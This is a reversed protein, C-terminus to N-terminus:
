SLKTLHTADGLISLSESIIIGNLPPTFDTVTSHVVTADYQRNISLGMINVSQVGPVQSIAGVLASVYLTDGIKFSKFFNELAGGPGAVAEKLFDWSVVTSTGSGLRTIQITTTVIYEDAIEVTTPMGAAKYGPIYGSSSLYGNIVNQTANKLLDSTILGGPSGVGNYIFVRVDGKENCPWLTIGDHELIPTSPLNGAIDNNLDITKALAVREIVDGTGSLLKGLSAGYELADPTSRHLGSLFSTFRTRMELPTEPDQGNVFGIQLYPFSTQFSSGDVITGLNSLGDESRIEVEPVPLLLNGPLGPEINGLEGPTSCKAPVHFLTGAVTGMPITFATTTQFSIDIGVPQWKTGILFTTDSVTPIVVEFVLYGTAFQYPIQTFNFATYASQIIGDQLETAQDTYFQEGLEALAEFETRVTSGVSLDTIDTQMMVFYDIMMQTLYEATRAIFLGPTVISQDAM